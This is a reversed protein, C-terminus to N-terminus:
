GNDIQSILVEKDRGLASIHWETIEEGPILISAGPSSAPYIPYGMTAIKKLDLKQDLGECFILEAAICGLADKLKRKIFTRSFFVKRASFKIIPKRAKLINLPQLVSVKELSQNLNSLVHEVYKIDELSNAFSFVLLVGNWSVYEYDIGNKFLLDALQNGLIKKSKLFIKCPDIIKIDRFINNSDFSDIKRRLKDIQPILKQITVKFRTSSMFKASFETSFNIINSRSTTGILKLISCMSNICFFDAKQPVHLLAAQVFAGAYKHMSHLVVSACTNIGSRYIKPQWFLHTGHTEDIVLMIKKDKCVNSIKEIDIVTGKYSPNTVLLAKPISSNSLFDLLEETSPEDKKSPIFVPNLNSIILGHIAAIHSNMPLAIQDSYMSCYLLAARLGQSCGNSLFFSHKTDYLKSLNNEAIRISDLDFYHRDISLINKFYDPVIEYVGQHAPFHAKIKIGPRHVELFKKLSM